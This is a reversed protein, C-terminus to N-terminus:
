SRFSANIRTHSQSLRGRIGTTREPTATSLKLGSNLAKRISLFDGAGLFERTLMSAPGDKDRKNGKQLLNLARQGQGPEDGRVRPLSFLKWHRDAKQCHFVDCNPSLVRAVVVVRM